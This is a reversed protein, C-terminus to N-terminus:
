IRDTAGILIQGVFRVLVELRQGAARVREVTLQKIEIRVPLKQGDVDLPQALGLVATRAQAEIGDRPIRVQAAIQATLDANKLAVALEVLRDDTQMDLHVDTLHIETPTVEPVGWIIFEGEIKRHIPIWLFSDAIEGHVRVHMLLAGKASDLRIGDLQIWGRDEGPKGLPLPRGTVLQKETQARVADLSIGIPLLLRTEPVSLERAVHIAVPLQTAVDAALVCPQEVTPLAAVVIALRLASPDVEPQTATIGQARLKLCAQQQLPMPRNMAATMPAVASAVPLSVKSILDTLQRALLNQLADVAVNSLLSLPGPLNLNQLSVRAVVGNLHLDGNPSLAPQACLDIDANLAKDLNSGFAQARALVRFPVLLCLAGNDSRPTVIGARTVDVSWRVLGSEGDRHVPALAYREVLGALQVFPLRAVAAIFSTEAAPEVPQLTRVDPEPAVVHLTCASLALPLLLLLLRRM